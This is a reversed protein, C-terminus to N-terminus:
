RDGRSTVHRHAEFMGGDKSIHIPGDRQILAEVHQQFRALQDETLYGASQVYAVLPAAEPVVLADGYRHLTVSSFWQALEAAGHELNFGTSLRRDSILSVSEHRQSAAPRFMHVLADLERMHDRSSTAAYLRGGPKLVRRFERYAAARNPVHYLMHHAIVAEFGSDAFPLAQVGSIVFQLPHGCARLHQHAERLMGASLDSLTLDWGAPIRHQNEQWLRGSGCGVELVRCTPPLRLHEFVWAHFGQPNTSCKAHLHIRADLRSAHQYHHHLAKQMDAPNPM